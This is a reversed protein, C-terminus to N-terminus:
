KEKTLRLTKIEFPKFDMLLSNGDMVLEDNIARERLDCYEARTYGKPLPLIINAAGGTYEYFRLILGRDDEAPKITELKVSPSDIAFAPLEPLPSEGNLPIKLMPANFLHAQKLVQGGAADSFHPYFAYSYEHHAIDAAPDVDAPARLLNLEMENDVIRHGYKCDNLLACGRDRQSLDAWRHAPVEFRAEEISNSPKTSRKLAGMAIEFSAYDAYIAPYFHVRLMKHHEQWDVEHHIKIWPAADSLEIRQIITSNGLRIEHSIVQLHSGARWSREPILKVSHPLAPQTSRYFHNIDWAGWNNPEDEWLKLVNSDAELMQRGDEKMIISTITGSPSLKVKVHDNELEPEDYPLALQQNCRGHEWHIKGLSWPPLTAKVLLKDPMLITPLETGIDDLAISELHDLPFEIWDQRAWSSPNFIAYVSTPMEEDETVASTLKQVGKQIFDDLKELNAEHIQRAEDYVMGISSGPIIDHFQLLLLDEWIQRLTAPYGEDLLAAVFEAASLMREGQRNHKKTLAQTTYTGRHLELYLEGYIKPLLSTDLAKCYDFFDQGKAFIFRTSGDLDQQRIGYEIHERTPGGGGDGIGYLNLYADCVASQAYRLETQRFSSPNNSFNYDNTPLQHALIRSGDIGEWVFLHQPFANTENWSLKQTMFWDLGAKTLLQPLNANFGFCDPLWLGRPSVGFEEEFFRLGYCLQRIISEGCPLNTDFEVWGAGQVEWRGDKVAKQVEKWLPPYLQKMWKYLQAQSAGFVYDPHEELLRLANAFSRGGKRKTERIPWLWALDLHAHGVSFAKLASANAPIKLSTDLIRRIFDQDTNWLDCVQNLDSLIKDRRSQGEPLTLALDFLLGIDRLTDRLAEDVSVIQCVNLRFEDKGGGFLGNAAAELLLEHCVGARSEASDPDGLPVLYKAAKHYWDVKPTLGQWPAGDKWVCAEGDCDFWLALKMGEMEKPIIARVKFWASEWLRAWVEGPQIAKWTQGSLDGYLIPLPHPCFVAEAPAKHRHVLPMNRETLRKIREILIKENQM